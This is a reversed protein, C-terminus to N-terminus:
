TAVRMFAEVVLIKDQLHVMSTIHPSWALLSRFMFGKGCYSCVHSNKATGGSQDEKTVAGLTTVRHSGHQSGEPPTGREFHTAVPSAFPVLIEHLLVGKTSQRKQLVKLRLHM